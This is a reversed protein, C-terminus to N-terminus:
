IAGKTQKSVKALVNSIRYDHLDFAMLCVEALRLVEVLEQILVEQEPARAFLAAMAEAAEKRVQGSDTLEAPWEVSAVLEGTADTIDCSGASTLPLTYGHLIPM